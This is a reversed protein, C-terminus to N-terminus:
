QARGCPSGGVSSPRCQLDHTHVWGAAGSRSLPNDSWSRLPSVAWRSKGIWAAPCSVRSCFTGNFSRPCTQSCSRVGSSVIPSNCRSPLFSVTPSLPSSGRVGQTYLLHEVLQALRGRQNYGQGAALDIRGWLAIKSRHSWRFLRPKRGNAIPGRDGRSWPHGVSHPNGGQAGKRDSKGPGM